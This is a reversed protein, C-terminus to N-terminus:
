SRQTAMREFSETTQVRSPPRLINNAAFDEAQPYGCARVTAAAQELDYSTRRLVPQPGLELWYAGPDEFPMGVSGANVIEKEDVHRDYQMHTHGCVIVRQKVGALVERLRPEPTIATIIEEDSRPTGHCFLVEGLGEIALVLQEPLSALFDREGPELQKATWNTVERVENSQKPDPTLGDFAAVIARECNGRIFRARDGLELLRRLTQKPMPGPGIDGGIVILDFHAQEIEELVAEL